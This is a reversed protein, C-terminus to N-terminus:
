IFPILFEDISVRNMLSTSNKNYPFVPLYFSKHIDYKAMRRNGLKGIETPFNIIALM